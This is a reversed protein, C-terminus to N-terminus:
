RGPDKPLGLVREGLINRLIESTGAEITNGRARLFAYEWTGGDRAHGDLRTLQHAPGLVRTATETLRQNLESWVLKIVSAAPGPAGKRQIDTLTRMIAFRLARTHVVHGAIEDRTVPDDMATGGPATRSPTKGALRILSELTNELSVQLGTGLNSREHMLTSITVHWGQGVEGLVADKPVRVDSFFVENFEADRTIQVLPRVEVGPLRMDVLLATIGQHRSPPDPDTRALLLCWDALHAYSTWVKQGNVVWADGVDVARTQLNAVDSGANPESFGQCWIEEGSLIKSLFRTKQEPTGLQAITPGAIHTGIVSPLQPAKARGIEENYIAVETASANRGGYESPWHIGIWRDAAMRAQFHRLFGIRDSDSAWRGRDMGQWDEPLNRALWERLERRFQAEQPSDRFDM